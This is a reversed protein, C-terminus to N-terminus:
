QHNELSQTLAGIQLGRCFTQTVMAQLWGMIQKPIPTVPVWIRTADFYKMTEEIAIGLDVDGDINDSQV